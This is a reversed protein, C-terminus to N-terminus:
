NKIDTLRPSSIVMQQTTILGVSLSGEIQKEIFRLLDFAADDDFIITLILDLMRELTDKTLPYRREALMNIKTGDELRLVYVELTTTVFRKMVLSHIEVLDMRDFLKVM